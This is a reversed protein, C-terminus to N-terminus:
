WPAWFWLVVDQGEYGALDISEGNLDIFDGDFIDVEAADSQAEIADSTNATTETGGGCAVAVLGFLASVLMLRASRAVSQSM